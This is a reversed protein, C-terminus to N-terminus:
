QAQLRVDAEKSKSGESEEGWRAKKAMEVLTLEPKGKCGAFHTRCRTVDYPEKVIRWQQCKPCQFRRPDDGDFRILPSIRLCGTHWTELKAKSVKFTGAKYANRVQRSASASRSTGGDLQLTTTPKKLKRKAEDPLDDDRKRKKPNGGSTPNTTRMFIPFLKPPPQPTMDGSLEPSRDPPDLITTVEDVFGQSNTPPDDPTLSIDNTEPAM